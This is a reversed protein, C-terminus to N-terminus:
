AYSIGTIITIVAIWLLLSDTVLHLARPIDDANAERNLGLTPRDHWVGHYRAQGGLEIELAGAGAAMVPGANPSDWRKAQQRWCHLGSRVNGVLAYSLATLRAPIYNMLDDIRAAARGFYLYRDTKYGWMADLTNSLRYIVVGPLGAVIFWFLASFIADAGNELVSEISAKPIHLTERDRSVIYSTLTKAQEIDGQKLSTIIPTVHDYLSRHGICLYLVIVSFILNLSPIDSICYAIFAFPAVLVLWGLLGKIFQKKIGDNANYLRNEIHKTLQGFGVLPHRRTPEGLLWDLLLALIIFLLTM